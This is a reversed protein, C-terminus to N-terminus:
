LTSAEEVLERVKEPVFEGSYKGTELSSAVLVQDLVGGYKTINSADVGSAVALPKDGIRAKMARIKAPSPAFGTGAGSTTVIDMHGGLEEAADAAARPEATYGETYKFAVGGLLQISALTPNSTRLHDLEALYRTAERKGQSWGLISDFWLGDPARDIIGLELADQIIQYGELPDTLLNLGIYKDDFSKAVANYDDLLTLIDNGPRKSQNILFVGDSGAEFAVETQTTAQEPTQTHVVPFVRM